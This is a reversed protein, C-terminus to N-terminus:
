RAAGTGGMTAQLHKVNVTASDVSRGLQADYVAVVTELRALMARTAALKLAEGESSSIEGAAVRESIAYLRADIDRVIEGIRSHYEALIESDAARCAVDDIGSQNKCTSAVNQEGAKVSQAQVSSIFAPSIFLLGAFLVAVAKM